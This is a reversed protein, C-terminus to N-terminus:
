VWAKKFPCGGSQLKKKQDLGLNLIWTKVFLIRTNLFQHAKRQVSIFSVLPVILDNSWVSITFIFWNKCAQLVVDKRLIIIYKKLLDPQSSYESSWVM